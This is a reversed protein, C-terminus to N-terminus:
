CMRRRRQRRATAPTQAFTGPRYWRRYCTDAVRHLLFGWGSCRATGSVPSVDRDVIVDAFGLGGLELGVGGLDKSERSLADFIEFVVEVVFERQWFVIKDQYGFKREAPHLM